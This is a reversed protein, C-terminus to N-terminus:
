RGRYARPSRWRAWLRNEGFHGDALLPLVHVRIDPRLNQAVAEHRFIVKVRVKRPKSFHVRFLASQEKVEHFLVKRRVDRPVREVATQERPAVQRLANVHHFEHLFREFLLNANHGAGCEQRIFVLWAVREADIEGGRGILLQVFPMVSSPSVMRSITSSYLIDSLFIVM